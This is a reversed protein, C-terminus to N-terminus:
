PQELYPNHGMNRVSIFLQIRIQPGNAEIKHQYHNQHCANPIKCRPGRVCPHHFLKKRSLMNHQREDDVCRSAVLSVAISHRM